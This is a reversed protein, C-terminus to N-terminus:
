RKEHLPGDYYKAVPVKPQVRLQAVVMPAEDRALEDCTAYLGLRGEELQNHQGLLRRLSAVIVLTPSRVLLKAIQGHDSRLSRAIPLPHGGRKARAYPLLVKEEMSIHQLLGQRFQAYAAEDISGDPAGSATLLHDLRVHDASMFEEIPGVHPVSSLMTAGLALETGRRRACAKVPPLGHTSLAVLSPRARVPTGTM